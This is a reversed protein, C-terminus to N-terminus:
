LHPPAKDSRRPSPGCADKRAREDRALYPSGRGVEGGGGVEGEGEEGGEGGEGGEGEGGGM